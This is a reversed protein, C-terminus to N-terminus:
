GPSVSFASGDQTVRQVQDIGTYVIVSLRYSVSGGAEITRQRGAEVAQDFRVPYGVWPEVALHYFDRWGGYSQWIWLARFVDRPYIMAIGVQRRTDTLAFWNESPEIAYHGGSLASEPPPLRRMDRTGDATPLLPWDYTQGVSGLGAASAAAVLMRGPPLDLRHDPTIHFLPHVGWILPLPQRGLNTVRYDAHLVPADPELRLWREFRVPLIPTSVGTYLCVSGDTTAVQRDMWALSWLEGHDPIAEGRFECAEATPLLEDWGGSFTNDYATGYPARQPLIRPHQWLLPTDSPKHVISQIRAGVEPLVVVQLTPNDLVVAKVGNYHWRDDLRAAM